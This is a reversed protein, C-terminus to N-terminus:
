PRSCGAMLSLSGHYIEQPPQGQPETGSHSASEATRRAADRGDLWVVHATGDPGVTLSQWGRAGTFASDHTVRAPAFTRGGDTSRAMRIVDRRTQPPGPDRKSWVVTLTPLNAPGSIFIRPPQENTAGADGDRDNVRVPAAFTLGGDRSVALYVNASGEKASAWVAAVIRGAAALSPTSNSAGPVGLTELDATEKTLISQGQAGPLWNLAIAAILALLRRANRSM